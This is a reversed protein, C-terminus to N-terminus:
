THDLDNAKPAQGVFCEQGLQLHNPETPAGLAVSEDAHALSFRIRFHTCNEFAVRPKVPQGCECGTM